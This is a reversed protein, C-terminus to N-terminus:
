HNLIHEIPCELVENNFTFKNKYKYINGDVFWKIAIPFIQHEIDHIKKKILDEDYNDVEYRAQIIVPGDDLKSTVYHVSAGHFKDRGEIVKRHTNLGKHKPLLSPHINLIMGDYKKTINEPLIKMFGALVVLDIANDDIVGSLKKEFEDNNEITLTPIDHNKAIDLGNAKFNNSIVMLIEMNIFGSNVNNIINLLNSGKGSILVIAKTKKM